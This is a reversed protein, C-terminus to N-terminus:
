GAIYLNGRSPQPLRVDQAFWILSGTRQVCGGCRFVMWDLSSLESFLRFAAFASVTSRKAAEHKM